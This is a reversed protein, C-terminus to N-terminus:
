PSLTHIARKRHPANMQSIGKKRRWDANRKMPAKASKAFKATNRKQRALYTANKEARKKRAWERKYKLYQKRNNKRWREAIQRHRKKYEETSEFIVKKVPISAVYSEIEEASIPAVVEKSRLPPHSLNM